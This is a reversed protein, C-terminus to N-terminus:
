ITQQGNLEGGNATVYPTPMVPPAPHRRLLGYLNNDVQSITLLEWGFFHLYEAASVVQRMGDGRMGVYAHVFLYHYPYTRLDCTQNMIGDASVARQRAIVDASEIRM